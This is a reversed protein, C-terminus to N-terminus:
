SLNGFSLTGNAAGQRIDNQLLLAAGGGVTYGHANCYKPIRYAALQRWIQQMSEIVVTVVSVHMRGMLDGSGAAGGTCFHHGSGHFQLVNDRTQVHMLCSLASALASSLYADM